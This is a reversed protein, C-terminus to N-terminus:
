ASPHLGVGIPIAGTDCAGARLGTLIGGAEAADGCVPTVLELCAAYLETHVLNSALSMAEVVAPAEHVLRHTEEEVLLLEEEAGLSLPPSTGFGRELASGGTGLRSTCTDTAHARPM